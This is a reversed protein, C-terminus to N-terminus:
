EGWDISKLEWSSGDEFELKIFGYNTTYYLCTVKNWDDCSSGYSANYLLGSDVIVDYYYKNLINLSDIFLKTNEYNEILPVLYGRGGSNISECKGSDIKDIQTIILDM